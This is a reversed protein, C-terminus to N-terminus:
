RTAPRDRVTRRPRRARGTPTPRSEPPRGARRSPRAPAPTSRSPKRRPTGRRAASAPPRARARSRTPWARRRHETSAAAHTAIPSAGMTTRALRRARRHAHPVRCPAARFRGRREHLESPSVSASSTTASAAAVHSQRSCADGRDARAGHRPVTSVRRRSRAHLVRRRREGADDGPPESEDQAGLPVLPQRDFQQRCRRPALFVCRLGHELITTSGTPLAHVAHRSRPASAAAHRRAPTRATDAPQGPPAPRRRGRRCHRSSRYSQSM